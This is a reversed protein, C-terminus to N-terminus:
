DRACLHPCRNSTINMGREKEELMNASYTILEAAKRLQDSEKLQQTYLMDKISAIDQRLEEIADLIKQENSYTFLDLQAPKPEPEPKIEISEQKSAANLAKLRAARFKEHDKHSFFTRRISTHQYDIGSVDKLWFKVIRSEDDSLTLQGKQLSKKIKKIITENERYLNCLNKELVIFESNKFSINRVKKPPTVNQLSRRNLEKGKCDTIGENNFIKIIEDYNVGDNLYCTIRDGIGIINTIYKNPQPKPKPKPKPKGYNTYDDLLPEALYDLKSNYEIARPKELKELKSLLNEYNSERLYHDGINKTMQEFDHYYISNAKVEKYICYDLEGENSDSLYTYFDKPSDITFYKGVGKIIVYDEINDRVEDESKSSNMLEYDTFYAIVFMYPMELRQLAEWQPLICHRSSTLRLLLNGISSYEPTKFFSKVEVFSRFAGDTYIEVFDCLSFFNKLPLDKGASKNYMYGLDDVIKLACPHNFINKEHSSFLPICLKHM